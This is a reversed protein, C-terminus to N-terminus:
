KRLCTWIDTLLPRQRRRISPQLALFLNFADDAWGDRRTANAFCDLLFSVLEGVHAVLAPSPSATLFGLIDGWGKKRTM